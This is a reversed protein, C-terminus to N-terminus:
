WGFYARMEAAEDAPMRGLLVRNTFGGQMVRGRRYTWDIIDSEAIAVRQGIQHETHIPQNVLVGTMPVASRDLETAWVFEADDGPLIDFKIMFETEDAGPSALHRYFEPLTAIGQAKAANMEPDDARVDYVQEQDKASDPEQALAVSHSGVALMLGLLGLLNRTKM